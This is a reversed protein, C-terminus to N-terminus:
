DLELMRNYNVSDSFRNFEFEFVGSEYCVRKSTVSKHVFNPDDFMKKGGYFHIIAIDSLDWEHEEFSCVNMSRPLPKRALEDAYLRQICEQDGWPNSGSMYSDIFAHYCDMGRHKDLNVLMVGSNLMDMHANKVGSVLPIDDSYGKLRDKLDDIVVTDADLYLVWPLEPFFRSFFPFTCNWIWNYKNGDRHNNLAEMDGMYTSPFGVTTLHCGDFRSNIFKFEMITSAKLNEPDPVYLFAEIRHGPSRYKFLTYVSRVAYEISHSSAVYVVPLVKFDEPAGIGGSADVGELVRSKESGNSDLYKIELDPM